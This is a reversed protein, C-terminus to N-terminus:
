VVTERRRCYTDDLLASASDQFSASPGQTGSLELEEGFYPVGRHTFTDVLKVNKVTSLCGSRAISDHTGSTNDGTGINMLSIHCVRGELHGVHYKPVM